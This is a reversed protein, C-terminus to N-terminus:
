RQAAVEEASVRSGKNGWSGRLFNAIEAADADTMAKYPQMTQWGGFSINEPALPGHLVVNILSAPDDAQVIASKAVPPGSFIGGRGSSMHCEECREKYLRAGVQTAQAPESLEEKDNPRLAKVYVAMARADQSTLHATSNLIVDDMPGFTGARRSFGKQLYAALEDVSWAALGRDSSTLNVASWTRGKGGGAPHESVLGGTYANSRDLGMLLDRPGHCENCHGLGEVLYAGRNWEKSESASSVFRGPEFYLANWFLMTWRQSFLLGNEPPSYRVAKVTRLYTFIADVDEDSVKTFSTYPFAPFLRRGDAGIGEHMARRLDRAGWKGIGTEEDPTINTSYITGFRTEFAVGGSFAGGGKRTHCGACNGARVLYAGRENASPESASATRALLLLLMLM